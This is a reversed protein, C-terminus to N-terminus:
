SIEKSTDDEDEVNYETYRPDMNGGFLSKNKKDSRTKKNVSLSAHM